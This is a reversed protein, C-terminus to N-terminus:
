FKRGKRIPSVYSQSPGKRGDSNVPIANRTVSFGPDTTSTVMNGNLYKESSLSRTIPSVSKARRPFPTSSSFSTRDHFSDVTEDLKQTERGLVRIDAGSSVENLSTSLKMRIDRMEDNKQSTRNIFSQKQQMEKSLQDKLTNVQEELGRTRQKHARERAAHTRELHIQANKNRDAERELDERHRASIDM